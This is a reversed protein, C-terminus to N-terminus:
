TARQIVATGLLDHDTAEGNAGGAADLAVANDIGNAEGRSSQRLFITV